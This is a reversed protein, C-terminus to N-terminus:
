MPVYIAFVNVIRGSSFLSLFAAMGIVVVSYLLRRCRRHPPPTDRGIGRRPSIVLLRTACIVSKETRGRDAGARPLPPIAQVRRAEQSPNTQFDTASSSRSSETRRQAVKRAKGLELRASTSAGRRRRRSSARTFSAVRLRRLPSSRCWSHGCLRRRTSLRTRCFSRRQSCKPM